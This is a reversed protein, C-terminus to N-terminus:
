DDRCGAGPVLPLCAIVRAGRTPESEVQFSGGLISVRDRLGTLGLCDEREMAAAVDFGPGGDCVEVWVSTENSWVRVSLSTGDAHRSANQLSEQIVRYLTIKTSLPAKDPMAAVDLSVPERTRAVHRQIAKRVAVEPTAEVLDVGAFDAAVRRLEDVSLKVASRIDELRTDLECCDDIAASRCRQHSAELRDIQLLAYSLDQVPGDHLESSTRQRFRENLATAHAAAMRIQRHLNRNQALLQSLEDVRQLLEREQSWIVRSTRRVAIALLAYMPLGIVTLLLWMRRRKQGLAAELNDLSHYFEVVAVVRGTAEDRIPCFIELLRNWRTRLVHHEVDDLPTVRWAVEGRWAAARQPSGTFVLGEMRPDDSFLIRGEPNWLKIGVMEARVSIATVAAGIERVLESNPFSSLDANAIELRVLDDLHRATTTVMEHVTRELVVNELWRGIVLFGVFVIVFTAILLGEVPRLRISPPRGSSAAPTATPSEITHSSM